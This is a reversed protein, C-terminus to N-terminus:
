SYFEVVVPESEMKDLRYCWENGSKFAKIEGSKSMKILEGKAIGLRQLENASKEGEKLAEIVKSTVQVTDDEPIDSENLEMNEFDNIFAMKDKLMARMKDTEVLIRDNVKSVYLMNDTSARIAQSGIYELKGDDKKTKKTHHLVIITAGFNDRLKKLISFIENVDEDSNVSSKVFDKLSDIVILCKQGQKEMTSLLTLNGLMEDRSSTSGSYFFIKEQGNKDILKEIRDKTYALGNDNDKYILSDLEEIKFLHNVIGMTLSSKGVNAEGVLTTIQNGAILGGFLIKISEMEEITKKTVVGGRKHLVTKFDVGKISKDYAKSKVEDIKKLLNDITSDSQKEKEILEKKLFSALGLLERKTSGEKIEKVYAMNNSIPTASMIEILISDDVLKSDTHKRVFEEDIPYDRNYLDQMAKYIHQHAPLYFDDHNLVISIDDFLTCDFLISSLVAREINVTYVSDM